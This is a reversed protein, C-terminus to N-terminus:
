REKDPKLKLGNGAATIFQKIAVIHYNGAIGFVVGSFCGYNHNLTM